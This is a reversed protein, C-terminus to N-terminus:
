ESLAEILNQLMDPNDTSIYDVGLSIFKLMDQVTNAVWVNVILGNDHAQAVWEPHELLVAAKYDMATIGDAALEAPTKDGNLYGVLTGEPVLGVLRKCTDYNFAIYEVRSEMGHEGVMALLADCARANKAADSHSKIEVVLKTAASKKAQELYAEFTPIVEGGGIEIDKIEDYTANQITKGGISKDHHVVLVDDATIWVDMESGFAGINQAAALSGISNEAAVGDRHFGRHAVVEPMRVAAAGAAVNLKATGLPCMQGDRVLVLRYTDGVFDSPIVTKLSLEGKVTEATYKRDADSLSEFRIRDGDAFGKGAINYTMGASVTIDSLFAADSVSLTNASPMRDAVDRWLEGVADDSLARGYVRSLLVDGNWANSGKGGAGPDAGVTFAQCVADAVPKYDGSVPMSARKEGNVYIRTEGKDKDWVGVVHYYEGKKPVVGSRTWVYSGGVYPLFTIQDEVKDIMLGTGGSQMSSLMKLEKKMPDVALMFVAELSHGGALGDSFQKNGAYSIRYFGTKTDVAPTNNFRAAYGGFVDHYYTTMLPSSLVEVSSKLPSVDEATGDNAFRVDLLLDLSEAAQVVEVEKRLGSHVPSTFVVSARREHVSENKGVTLTLSEATRAKETFIGSPEVACDWEDLATTITLTVDGGEAAVKECSAAVEFAPVGDAAAQTVDFSPLVAGDLTIGFVAERAKDGLNPDAVLTIRGNGDGASPSLTLWGYEEVPLIEWRGDSEVAFSVEGGDGSFGYSSVPTGGEDSLEFFPETDAGTGDDDKCSSLMGVSLMAAVAFVTRAIHAFFPQTKM